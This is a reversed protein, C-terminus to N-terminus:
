NGNPVALTEALGVMELVRLVPASATAVVVDTGQEAGHARVAVLVRLCSSDCFAVAAMDVELRRPAPRAALAAMLAVRLDEATSLDIEGGVSLRAVPGSVDTRATLDDSTRVM